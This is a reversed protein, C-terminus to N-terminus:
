KVLPYINKWVADRVAVSKNSNGTIVIVANDDPLIFSYQGHAGDLRVSNHRGRWMQYCYGSNRGDDPLAAIEEASLGKGEYQM